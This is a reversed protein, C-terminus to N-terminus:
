RRGLVALVPCPCVFVAMSFLLVLCSCWLVVVPSICIIWPSGLLEWSQLLVDPSDYVVVPSGSHLLVFWSTMLSILNLLLACSRCVPSSYLAGLNNFYVGPYYLVVTYCVLVECSEAHSWLVHAILFRQLVYGSQWLICRGRSLRM